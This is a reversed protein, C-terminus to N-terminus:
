SQIYTNQTIDTYNLMLLVRGFNPGKRRHCGTYNISRFGTSFLSCVSLRGIELQTTNRSVLGKTIRFSASNVITDLKGKSSIQLMCMVSDQLISSARGVLLFKTWNTKASIGTFDLQPVQKPCSPTPQKEPSHLEDSSSQNPNQVESIQFRAVKHLFNKYKKKKSTNLTKYVFNCQPICLKLM